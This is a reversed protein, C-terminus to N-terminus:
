QVELDGHLSGSKKLMRFIAALDSPAVGLSNLADVIDGLSSGGIFHLGTKGSNKSPGVMLSIGAHSIACTTISVGAGVIVTGTKSNIIVKAKADPIIDLGEMISIFQVLKKGRYLGPVNVEVNGSNKASSINKGFFQNIKRAMRSATTFDPSTLALSIVGSNIMRVPVEKEVLGGNVVIGSNLSVDRARGQTPANIVVSGQAVMYVKGDFGKLPTALLVGGKLSKANGISAVRVDVKTGTRVFPPLIATVTVAAVNKLTLRAPDVRLGMRSLMAAVSQITFGVQRDDGSGNLGVILGYGVLQNPRVGHVTALEKLRVAGSVSPFLMATFITSLIFKIM